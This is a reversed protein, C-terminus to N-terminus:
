LRGEMHRGIFRHSSSTRPLRRMAVDEEFSVYMFEDSPEAQTKLKGVATGLRGM